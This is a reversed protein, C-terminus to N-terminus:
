KSKFKPDGIGSFFKTGGKKKNGDVLAYTLKRDPAELNLNYNALIWKGDPLVGAVVGTHGTSADGAGAYPPYSSFGYGVTPNATVKAGKSKYSSHLDGGNGATPPTGKWMGKMYAYTLETCQGRLDTSSGFPSGKLFSQKFDPIKIYKQYKKPIDDKSKWKKLIKGSDGNAKVSEGVEGDTKSDSDKNCGSNSGADSNDSAASTSDDINSDGGDSGGKKAFKSYYKKAAAQRKPLSDKAGAREWKNMIEETISSVDSDKKILKKILSADTGDHNLIFDLQTEMDDWKKNKKDAYKLLAVRRESDLQAFGFGYGGASPDKAISAKYDAGGQITDASFTGGSEENINGLWAAIGKNTAGKVNEKAYKFISEANKDADKSNKISGSSKEVPTCEKDEPESNDMMNAATIITLVIVVLLLLAGLIPLIVPLFYTALTAALKKKVLSKSIEILEQKADEKNMNALDKFKAAKSLNPDIKDLTKDKLSSTNFSDEEDDQQTPTEDEDDSDKQKVNQGDNQDDTEKENSDNNNKEHNQNPNENTQFDDDMGEQEKDSTNQSNSEGEDDDTKTTNDENINQNEENERENGEHNDNLHNDESQQPIKDEEDPKQKLDDDTQQVNPYDQNFHDSNNESSSDSSYSPHTDSSQQVPHVDSGSPTKLDDDSQQVENLKGKYEFDKKKSLSM